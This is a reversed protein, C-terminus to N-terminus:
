LQSVIKLFIVIYAAITVVASIHQWFLLASAEREGYGRMSTMAGSLIATPMTHQLLLVFMFMKDDHPIVGLRHALLVVGIGIPPLLVLRTVTIGITTKLGLESSGPGVSLTGGLVLMVCPVLAAGLITLSDTFWGLPADDGFLLANTNPFIGVVIALLSAIIPPQMLHRIPTKEAVVRIKRIVRPEALCRVRARPSDGDASAASTQSSVSPYRFVRALLPTRMEETTADKVDPWEASTVSPMSESELTANLAANGGKVSGEEADESVLEYYEEPPELMHYVFTYIVIVAIWQSFAVYAVGAQNCKKGFPHTQGHCISGIIALPLNGANGIGTMVVTFRFFRAPPKCVLAVIVGAICGVFYSLLVNVPIFWWKLMNALTMSEGLETFILCPLFLAFVLKSLLRTASPTIISIRPQALLTGLACMTLVKMVPVVSLEIMYQLEGGVRVALEVSQESLLRM